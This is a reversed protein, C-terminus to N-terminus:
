ASVCERARESARGTAKAHCTHSKTCQLPTPHLLLLLLYTPLLLLLGKAHCARSKASSLYFSLYISQCISLYISLSISRYSSLHNTLYSVDAHVDSGFHCVQVHVYMCVCVFEGVM